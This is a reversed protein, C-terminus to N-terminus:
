SSSLFYASLFLTSVMDIGSVLLISPSLSESFECGLLLRTSDIGSYYKKLYEELLMFQTKITILFKDFFINKPYILIIKISLQKIILNKM